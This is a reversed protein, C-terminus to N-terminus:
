DNSTRLIRFNSPTPVAAAAQNVNIARGAITLTASRAAGLNAPITYSLSGSGTRTSSSVTIWEPVGSASWTCSSTTSVSFTSSTGNAPASVSSPTVTFNCTGRQTVSYTRGAITVSGTRQATNNNASVRVSVSGNGSGSAGSTVTLWSASSSATWACGSATTVAVSSTEGPSEVTRSTPNIAYSCAPTAAAQVVTVTQGAITLTGTRSATTSPNAAVAFQVTRTGTTSTASTINLWSANASATWACTSGATVTLSQSSAAGAVSFSTTSLVPACPAAAGAQNITVTQGAVTLTGTRQTTATNATAAFAVSGSGTVPMASTISLWSANATATWQCAPGATVGVTGTSAASGLSASGASLVPACPASSTFENSMQSASVGGPGVALVRAQYVTGGLLPNPLLSVFSVRILGAAGPAPKGLEISYSPAASGAAVIELRYGTLLPSGDASVASHDASPEFEAATPDVVPQATAAPAVVTIGLITLTAILM